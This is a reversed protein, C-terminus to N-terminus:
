HLENPLHIFAAAFPIEPDGFKAPRYFLVEIQPCANTSELATEWVHCDPAVEIVLFGVLWGFLFGFVRQSKWGSRTAM